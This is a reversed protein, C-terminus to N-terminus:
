KGDDDLLAETALEISGNANQLAERISNPEVSPFMNKLQNFGLIVYMILRASFSLHYWNNKAPTWMLPLPTVGGLIKLYNSFTLTLIITLSSFIPGTYIHCHIPFM